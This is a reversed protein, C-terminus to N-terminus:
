NPSSPHYFFVSRAAALFLAFPLYSFVAFDSDEDTTETDRPFSYARFVAASGYSYLSIALYDFTFAIHRAHMSLTNFLHAAASLFGVGVATSLFILLPLGVSSRMFIQSEENVLLFYLIYAYYAGSLLHTWINWTENHLPYIMGILCESLSCKPPRYAGEIFPEQFIMPVEDYRYLKRLTWFKSVIAGGGAYLISRKPKQEQGANNYSQDNNSGSQSTVNRQRLYEIQSM